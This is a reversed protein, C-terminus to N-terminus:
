LLYNADISIQGKTVKLKFSAAQFSPPGFPASANNSFGYGEVPLGVFNFDMKGNKNEDHLVAVAYTGPKLGKFTLRAQGDKVRTVKGTIEGGKDPFGKASNYLAAAVQGKANRLGRVYVILESAAKPDTKKGYPEASPRDSSSSDASSHETKSAQATPNNAASSTAAGSVAAAVVLTLALARNLWLLTLNM